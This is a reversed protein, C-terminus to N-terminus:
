IKVDDVSSEVLAVYSDMARGSFREILPLVLLALLFGYLSSLFDRREVNKHSMCTKGTAPFQGLCSGCETRPRWWAEVVLVFGLGSRGVQAVAWTGHGRRQRGRRGVDVWDRAAGADVFVGARRHRRECLFACPRGGGRGAV